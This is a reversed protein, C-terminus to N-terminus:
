VLILISLPRVACIPGFRQQARQCFRENIRPGIMDKRISLRTCSKWRTFRVLTTSAQGSHAISNGRRDTKTDGTITLRTRNLNLTTMKTPTLSVKRLNLNRTLNTLTPCFHVMKRQLADIKRWIYDASALTRVSIRLTAASLDSM